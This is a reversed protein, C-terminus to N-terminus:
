ECLSLLYELTTTALCVNVDAGSYYIKVEGGPEVIWGTSFVVNNVDGNREYSTEPALIPYQSCGLLRWPEDADLLLVGLKYIPIQGLSRVGHYLLLWGKETKM